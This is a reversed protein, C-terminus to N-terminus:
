TMEEVTLTAIEPLVTEEAAVDATPSLIRYNEVGEWGYIVSGLKVLPVKESNM